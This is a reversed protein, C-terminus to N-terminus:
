RVNSVVEYITVGGERYAARLTDTMQDFKALGAASFYVRELDGVYVYRVGYKTLLPALRAPSPDNFMTQVDRLRQDAQPAYTGRQQAQHWRWGLVAPLGTYMAVRSGWRYEPISAELIVPSGKVNQMLWRIAAHDGAGRIEVARGNQAMVESHGDPMSVHAMYAMGDLTPPLQKFRDMLRAPTAGLPYALSAILLMGAVGAWAWAWGPISGGTSRATVHADGARGNASYGILPDGDGAGAGVPDDLVFPQTYVREEVARVPERRTRYARWLWEAGWALAVAAVLGWLVWIQLYFKFVTNMRGIDGQLAFLEVFMALATGTGAMLLAFLHGASDRREWAAAGILALVVALLPLLVSGTLRLLLALVAAGAILALYGAAPMRQEVHLVRELQSFRDWATLARWRAAIYRGWGSRRWAPAGAILTLTLVGFVLLGHIILFHDVRSRGQTWPTVATYFTVYWQWFPRFLPKALVLVGAASIGARLLGGVTVRRQATVEAIVFALATLGLYTPFEWTNIVYLAGVLWAVLAIEAVRRWSFLSWMWRAPQAADPANLATHGRLGTQALHLLVVLTAVQFPLSILHAHLDSFLFTWFPFENSTNDTVSVRSSRWFDFQEIPRGGLLVAPIGTIVAWLGAVGPLGTRMTVQAARQFREILQSFGDLNGILGVLVFGLVGATLAGPLGFRPRGALRSLNYACSFCGVALLGYLTAVAVNFGVSPVTGTLKILAAVLVYGFYYYNLYGGAYWPDYPPFYTTKVVANLYSLEMPKEGGRGPHWLDPNTARFVLLLLYGALFVGETTLVMARHARLWALWEVGHRRVVLGSAAALAAVSLLLTVRTWPLIRYGVLTWALWSVALLALPKTIGYGRDPLRTLGLWLLPAALLGLLQMVLYWTVPALANAAAGIGGLSFQDSWTGGAQNAQRLWDPMLLNPRGVQIPTQNIVNDLPVATLLERVKEASFDPQKQFILVKPHDYVTFAEEARDDNIVLPGFNPYSAEVHVVKFGLDGAFLRRYYETAMPYRQPIRPISGYLRNSTVNIFDARTLMQVLTEIKRPEDPDYLPLQPGGYAAHDNGPIPVPLPDDWHENAMVAGKPVNQYIWQSAAVRTTPRTYIRTFAFAWLASSLVVFAILGLAIQPAREALATPLRSRGNLLAMPQRKAWDYLAVLGWAGLLLVFPYMPLLYRMTKNLVSAFQVFCFATWAVLLLHQWRGRFLMAVSAAAFGAWAAIGLPFGTGWIVMHRWPFWLPATGAWQISPPADYTGAQADLQQKIDRWWAQNIRVGLPGPGAFAYPQFLRFAVAATLVAIAGGAAFSLLTRSRRVSREAESEGPFSLRLGRWLWIAGSLAIIAGFIAMSLKTAAALGLFTGALAYARLRGTEAIDVCYYFSAAILTVLFSDFVFFHAQQIHMVCLSVFAAGLLGVRAGYLRRGILFTLLVTGLDALGSLARGLLHVKDYGVSNFWDAVLRVAFLPFTGYVYFGFGVNHPNLGSRAADFYYEHLGAPQFQTPANPGSRIAIAPKIAGEVMTLFREDPHLHYGGDWNLGTFRLVAGALLIVALLALERPGTGFVVLGRTSM